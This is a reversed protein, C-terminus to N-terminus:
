KLEDEILQDIIQKFHELTQPQAMSMVEYFEQTEWNRRVWELYEADSM